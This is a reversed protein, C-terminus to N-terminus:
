GNQDVIYAALGSGCAASEALGVDRCANGMRLAINAASPNLLYVIASLSKGNSSVTYACHFVSRGEYGPWTTLPAPDCRQSLYRAQELHTELYTLAARESASAAAADAASGACIGSSALSMAVAAIRKM